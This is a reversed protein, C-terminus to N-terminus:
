RCWWQAVADVIYNKMLCVIWLLTLEHAPLLEYAALLSSLPRGLVVKAVRDTLGFLFSHLADYAFQSLPQFYPLQRLVCEGTVGTSREVAQLETNVPASSSSSSSSITLILSEIDIMLM